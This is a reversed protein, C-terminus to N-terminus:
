SILIQIISANTILLNRNLIYVVIIIFYIFVIIKFNDNFLEMIFFTLSGITSSYLFFGLLLFGIRIFWNDSTLLTNLNELNKSIQLQKEKSVFKMKQLSKAEKNLIYNEIDSKNYVIM